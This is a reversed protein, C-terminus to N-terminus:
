TRKRQAREWGEGLTAALKGLGPGITSRKRWVLALTRNLAPDAFPRVALQPLPTM